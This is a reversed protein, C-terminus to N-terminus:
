PDGQIEENECELDRLLEEPFCFNEGRVLGEYKTMKSSKEWM